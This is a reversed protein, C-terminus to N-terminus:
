GYSAAVSNYHGVITGAKILAGDGYQGGVLFGAKVIRPFVLVAKAQGGIMKAAPVSAYLKKLTTEADADVGSAASAVIASMAALSLAAGAVFLLVLTLLRSRRLM